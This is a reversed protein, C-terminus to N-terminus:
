GPIRSPPRHGAAAGEFAEAKLGPREPPRWSQPRRRGPPDAAAGWVPAQVGPPQPAPDWLRATGPCQARSSHYPRWRALGRGGPGGGALEAPLWEKGVM